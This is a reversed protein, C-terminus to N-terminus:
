KSSGVETKLSAKRIVDFRKRDPPFLLAYWLTAGEYIAVAYQLVLLIPSYRRRTRLAGYQYVMFYSVTNFLSVALIEPPLSLGFFISYLIYALGLMGTWGVIYRYFLFMMLRRSVSWLKKRAYVIAMLWRRRQRYFDKMSLPPSIFVHFPIRSFGYKRSVLNGMMVDDAGYTAFDWGMEYEVDARITLGEGHVFMARGKSNFHRCYIDCDSIRVMDALTSMLHTGYDRLRIEGQGAVANMGMIYLLYDKEVISDDDLHCIYTELGYGLEHLVSIAYHLARLKTLSGKPTGYSTPVTIERAMYRHSDNEEKVVFIDMEIGYAELTGIISDVVDPNQGNTAIEVVLRRGQVPRPIHVTDHRHIFNSVIGAIQIVGLPFYVIVVFTFLYWAIPYM